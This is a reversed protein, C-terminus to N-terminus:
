VPNFLTLLISDLLNPGTGYDQTIKFIERAATWTPPAEPAGVTRYGWWEVVGVETGAAAPYPV